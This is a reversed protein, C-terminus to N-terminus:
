DYKNKYRKQNRGKGYDEKLLKIIEKYQEDQKALHNELAIIQKTNEQLNEIALIFSAINISNIFSTEKDLM